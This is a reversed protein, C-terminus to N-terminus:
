ATIRIRTQRNNYNETNRLRVERQEPTLSAEYDRMKSFRLRDKRSERYDQDRAERAFQGIEMVAIVDKDDRPLRKLLWSRSMNEAFESM